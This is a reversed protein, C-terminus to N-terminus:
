LAIQKKVKEKAYHYNVKLTDVSMGTVKSIEDYEMEDYYRLSFVLRQKEPLALLAKQLQIEATASYDVYESDALKEEFVASLNESRKNKRLFNLSENTAIRYLWAKLGSEKRLLWLKRYAKIFTDQLIDKADDHSVVLRRIHLYLPREFERVIECFKRDDAKM